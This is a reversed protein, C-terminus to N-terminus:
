RWRTSEVVRDTLFAFLGIVSFMFLVGSTQMSGRLMNSFHYSISAQNVIDNWPPTDAFAAGWSVFLMCFSLIISVFFGLIFSDTLSSAFLSLSVYVGVVLFLGAYSALLNGWQLDGFYSMSIPFAMSLLVLIWAASLAAILKGLVIQTSNVPSTLLLDFTRMKMEESFLRAALAPVLILMIIHVISIHSIVVEQHLSLGGGQGRTAMAYQASKSAFQRLQLFFLISLFTSLIGAIIYFSPGKLFAKLEKGAIVLVGRM